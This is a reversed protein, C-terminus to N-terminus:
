QNVSLLYFLYPANLHFIISRVRLPWIVSWLHQTQPALLPINTKQSDMLPALQCLWWTLHWLRAHLPRQQWVLDGGWSHSVNSWQWDTGTAKSIAERKFVSLKFKKLLRKLANRTKGKWRAHQKIAPSILKVKGEPLFIGVRLYFHVAASAIEQTLLHWKTKFYNIGNSIHICCFSFM